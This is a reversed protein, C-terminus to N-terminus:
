PKPKKLSRMKDLLTSYQYLAKLIEITFTIAVNIEDESIDNFTKAEIHVADNGLLRLEDMAELLEKPLVIKSQLDKIRENLDKGKAGREECVEELTRRIMIASAVYCKESHCTIAEEFTDLISIPINEKDFPIRLPPYQFVLENNKSIIFLHGRCKENSCMRQGCIYNDGIDIDTGSQNFTALHGCHPCTTTVTGINTQKNSDVKLHLLM